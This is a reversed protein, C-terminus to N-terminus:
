PLELTESKDIRHGSGRLTATIEAAERSGLTDEYRDVIWEARGCSTRARAEEAVAINGYGRIWIASLRAPSGAVNNRRLEDVLSSRVYRADVRQRVQWPAEVIIYTSGIANHTVVAAVQTHVVSDPDVIREDRRLPLCLAAQWRRCRGGLLKIQPGEDSTKLIRM